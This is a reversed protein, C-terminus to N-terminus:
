AQNQGVLSAVPDTQQDDHFSLTSYPAPTMKVPIHQSFCKVLPKPNLTIGAPLTM